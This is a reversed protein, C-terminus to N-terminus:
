LSVWVGANWFGWGNVDANWVVPAWPAWFPPPPPPPAWDPAGRFGAGFNDDWDRCHNWDPNDGWGRDWYDGPCWHHHDMPAPSPVAEATGSALGLASVALGGAALVGTCLRLWPRAQMTTKRAMDM